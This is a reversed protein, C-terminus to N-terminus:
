AAPATPLAGALTKVGAPGIKGLASAAAAAVSADPDGLIKALDPVAKEARRNGLSNIVGILLTGKVRGLAQRLAEDAEPGPIRELAFRAMHSLKEDGLLAGLPPVHEATGIVALQRCVLDKAGNPANTGLVAVLRAAMEKREAPKGHTAAALESFANPLSADGGFDFTALKALLGDLRTKFDGEPAAAWLVGAGAVWLVALIFFTRRASM